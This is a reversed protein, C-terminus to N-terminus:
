SFVKKYDLQMCQLSSGKNGIEANMCGPIYLDSVSIHIYSYPVLGRLKTEPFIQKSNETCHPELKVFITYLTPVPSLELYITYLGTAM